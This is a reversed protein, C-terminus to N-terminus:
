MFSHQNIIQEIKAYYEPSYSYLQKYYAKMAAKDGGEPAAVEEQKDSNEPNAVEVLLDTPVVVESTEKMGRVLVRVSEESAEIVYGYNIEATEPNVFSAYEGVEAGMSIVSNLSAVNMTRGKVTVNAEVLSKLDENGTRCLYKEGSASTRLQWITEDSKDMLLNSAMVQMKAVAEKTYERVAVNAYIFGVFTPLSQSKLQRFSGEVVSAENNFMKSVANRCAEPTERDTNTTIVVRALEPTIMQYDVLTAVVSDIKSRFKALMKDTDLKM